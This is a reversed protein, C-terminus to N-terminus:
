ASATGKGSPKTTFFPEFARAMVEPAMGPGTDTVAIMCTSARRCAWHEAATPADLHANATEITLRGGEPMADRANVRWTSSRTRSSARTPM